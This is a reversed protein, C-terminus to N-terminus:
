FGIRWSNERYADPYLFGASSVLPAQQGQAGWGSLDNHWISFGYGPNISSAEFLLAMLEKSVIQEGDWFGNQLILQGYRLWNKASVSAGNPIHPNGAKDHLWSTTLLGINDFIREQLYGLPSQTRGDLSLKRKILEGLVYYHSPGYRFVEGAKSLASLAIATGYKDGAIGDPGELEPLNDSLGSTSEILHRVTILELLFNGQWETITDSVNEDLDVLGDEILALVGVAWFAKTAGYIHIGTDEPYASSYNEFVIEGDVMLLM